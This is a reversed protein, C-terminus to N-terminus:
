AWPLPPEALSAELGGSGEAVAAKSVFACAPTGERETQPWNPLPRESASASACTPSYTLGPDVAVRLRTDPSGHDVAADRDPALDSPTPVCADLGAETSEEQCLDEEAAARGDFLRARGRVAGRRRARRLLGVQGDRRQPSLEDEGARAPSVAVLSRKHHLERLTVRKDDILCGSAAREDRRVPRPDQDGGDLSRRHGRFRESEVAGAM